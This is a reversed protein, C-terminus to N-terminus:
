PRYLDVVHTLSCAQVCRCSHCTKCSQCHYCHAGHIEVRRMVRPPGELQVATSAAATPAAAEFRVLRTVNEM